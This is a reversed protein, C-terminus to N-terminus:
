QKLLKRLKMNEKRLRELENEESNWFSPLRMLPPEFLRRSITHPNFTNYIEETTPVYDGNKDLHYYSIDNNDKVKARGKRNTIVKGDKDLYTESTYEQFYM